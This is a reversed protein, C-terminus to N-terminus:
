PMTKNPSGGGTEKPAAGSGAPPTTKDSAMPAAPKKAVKASNKQMKDDTRTQADKPMVSPGAPPTTRSSPAETTSTQAQAQGALALAAALAVAAPITHIAYKKM